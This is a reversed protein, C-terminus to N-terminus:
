GTQTPPTRLATRVTAIIVPAPTGPSFVAEYLCVASPTLCYLLTAEGPHHCIRIIQQGTDHDLWASNGPHPAFHHRALYQHLADPPAPTTREPM